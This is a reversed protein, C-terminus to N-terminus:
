VGMLTQEYPTLPIDAGGARLIENLQHIQFDVPDSASFAYPSATEIETTPVAVRPRTYNSEVFLGEANRYLPTVKWPLEPPPPPVSLPAFSPIKAPVKSTFAWFALALLGLIVAIPM